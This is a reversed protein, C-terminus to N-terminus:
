IKPVDTIDSIGNLILEFEDDLRADEDIPQNSGVSYACRVM